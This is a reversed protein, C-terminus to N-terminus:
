IDTLIFKVTIYHESCINLSKPSWIGKNDINEDKDIYVRGIANLRLKRRVKDNPLLYFNVNENNKTSNIRNKELSFLCHLINDKDRPKSENSVSNDSAGINSGLIVYM